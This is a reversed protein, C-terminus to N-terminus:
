RATPTTLLTGIALSFGPLMSTSITDDSTIMTSSEGRHIMVSKSKPYVQWVESTRYRLYAQLKEQTDSSRESPSIIEVALDPAGPVPVRNMDLSSVRPQLLLLVDPRVRYNDALAFEVDTLVLGTGPRAELYVMLAFLIRQVILQHEPTPSSVPIREGGLLEWLRGENYPLADFELGTM